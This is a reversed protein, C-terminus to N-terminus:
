LIISDTSYLFKGELGGDLSVSCQMCMSIFIYYVYSIGIFCSQLSLVLM